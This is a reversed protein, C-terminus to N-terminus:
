VSSNSVWTATCIRRFTWGRVQFSRVEVPLDFYDTLIAELGDASRAQQAFRGARSLKAYDPV